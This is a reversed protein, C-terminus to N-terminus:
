RATGLLAAIQQCRYDFIDALNRGVFPHVIWPFPVAYRVDDLIRTGGGSEVFRHTHEWLRYPGSLQVDTFHHPPNWQTIESTWRVPFAFPRLRYRIRSGTRLEAPADLIEFRLRPPTLLSLNRPDSFFAFVEALPRPVSQERTLRYLRV